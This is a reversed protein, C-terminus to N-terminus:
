GEIHKCVAQILGTERLQLKAAAHLLLCLSHASVAQQRGQKRQVPAAFFLRQQQQQPQQQQQLLLGIRRMIKTDRQQLLSLSLALLALGQGDLQHLQQKQQLRKLLLLFLRWPLLQLLAYEYLCCVLSKATATAARQELAWACVRLVKFSIKSLSSSNSSSSSSSSSRRSKSSRSATDPTSAAASHASKEDLM